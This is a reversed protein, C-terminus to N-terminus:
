VRMGGDKLKKIDAAAIGLEQLAEVPFPGAQVEEEAVDIDHQQSREAVAAM